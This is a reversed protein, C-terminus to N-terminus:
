IRGRAGDNRGNIEAAADASSGACCTVTTVGVIMDLKAAIIAATAPDLGSQTIRFAQMEGERTLELHDVILGRLAFQNLVRLAIGPDAHATVAYHVALPGGHARLTM